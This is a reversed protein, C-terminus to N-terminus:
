ALYIFLEYKILYKEFFDNALFLLNRFINNVKDIKDINSCSNMPM